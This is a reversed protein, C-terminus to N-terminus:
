FKRLAIAVDRRYMPAMTERWAAMFDRKAIKRKFSVGRIVYSPYYPLGGKGILNWYSTIGQPEVGGRYKYSFRRSAKDPNLFIFTAVADGAGGPADRMNLVDTAALLNGSRPYEPNVPASYVVKQVIGRATSRYSVERRKLMSHTKQQFRGLRTLQANLVKVGTLVMAM